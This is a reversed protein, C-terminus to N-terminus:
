LRGSRRFTTLMDKVENIPIAFGINENQRSTATTIGVVEGSSNVLAGGSNGFNLAADTQILEDLHEFRGAMPDRVTIDRNLGSIHGVTVTNRLDGFVSGIAIALQGLKVDDSNGLTAAKLNKRDISIVALERQPDKNIAKVSIRTNNDALMVYYTAKEVVVHKNTVILGDESVIIGSGVSIDKEDENAEHFIFNLILNTLHANNFFLDMFSNPELPKQSEPSKGVITVVSPYAKEVAKIVTSEESSLAYANSISLPYHDGQSFLTILFMICPILLTALKM